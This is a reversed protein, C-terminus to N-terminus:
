IYSYMHSMSFNAHMEAIRLASNGWPLSLRCNILAYCGDEILSQLTFPLSQVASLAAFALVNDGDQNDEDRPM